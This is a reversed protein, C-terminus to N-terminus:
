ASASTSGQFKARLYEEMIPKLMDLIADAGKPEIRGSAIGECLQLWAEGAAYTWVSAITANIVSGAGPVLTILSQAAARGTLQLALQLFGASGLIGKLSLGYLAALKGMMGLQIPALVAATAVPIPTAAAGAASAAAAAILGRATRRKAKVDIRQAAELANRFSPAVKETEELLELLGRTPPRGARTLMIRPHIGDVNMAIWRAFRRIQDVEDDRVKTLVGITTIRMSALAAIAAQHEKQVRGSGSDWCFWAAHIREAEPGRQIAKLDAKIIEIPKRRKSFEFGPFDYLRLTETANVYPTVGQTVPEGVDVRALDEGFMANVLSSKGVGTDGLIALNICGLDDSLSEFGRAFAARAEDEPLSEGAHEGNDTM